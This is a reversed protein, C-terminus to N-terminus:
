LEEPHLSLGSSTTAFHRRDIAFIKLFHRFIKLIKL